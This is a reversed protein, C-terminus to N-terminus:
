KVHQLVVTMIPVIWSLAAIGIAVWVGIGWEKHTEVKEAIQEKSAVAIKFERLVAIEARLAEHAASFERRSLFDENQKDLRRILDNHTTNYLAQAEESKRIAEKLTLHREEYLAHREDMVKQLTHVQCDKDECM